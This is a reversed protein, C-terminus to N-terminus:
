LPSSADGTGNRHVKDATMIELGLQEAVLALSDAQEYVSNSFEEAAEGFRLRAQQERLERTIDERVEEFPQIQAERIGELRVLHWGFESEVPGAVAGTKDLGFAADAVAAVMDNQ